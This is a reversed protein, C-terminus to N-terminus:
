LYLYKAWANHMGGNVIGSNAVLAAILSNDCAEVRTMFGYVNKRIIVNLGDLKNSVFMASASDRRSYVLLKRVVNNHAVRIKNLTSVKYSTWLSCCYFNTCFSRFLEIKVDKSCNSFQRLLMNARAYLGRMQKLIEDDDSLTDNLTVGLYKVSSTTSLVSENLSVSPCLLKYKSPKVTMCHSKAANFLIDHDAGYVSCINILQQLGMASPALLCLDDAYFLHNVCIDIYCGASTKSLLTSLDDLYLAFLKPSLIGGQRVGNHTIFSASTCSGWKVFFLQQRYWYVIVRVLILPVGRDILKKFLSWHNVRDFAKSADLFCM